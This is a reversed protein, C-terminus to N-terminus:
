VAESSNNEFREGKGFNEYAMQERYLSSYIGNNKLLNDRDGHEILKGEDLVYIRDCNETNAMRHSIILISRSGKLSRIYDMIITESEEDISSTAENLILLAGPHLLGRALALRQKQGGSLNSGNERLITDLGAQEEFVSWMKVMTLAEIMAKDEIVKGMSICDRVTGELVYEEHGLYVVNRYLAEMSVKSIDCGAMFCTGVPALLEQQLFKALTSKGSGSMGVIGITEGFDIDIDVDSLVKRKGDYSYSLSRISLPLACDM